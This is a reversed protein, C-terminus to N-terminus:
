LDGGVDHDRLVEALGTDGLEVIVAVLDEVLAALRHDARLARGLLHEVTEGAGPAVPALLLAVEGGGFVGVGELVLEVVHEGVLHGGGVGWLPEVGPEVPGVPQGAGGLAEPVDVAGVALHLGGGVGVAAGGGM